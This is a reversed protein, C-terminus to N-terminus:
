TNRRGDSIPDLKDMKRRRENGFDFTAKDTQLPTFPTLPSLNALTKGSNGILQKSSLISTM